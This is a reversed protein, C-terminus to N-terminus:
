IKDLTELYRKAIGDWSFNDIVFQRAKKGFERRFNEDAGLEKIKLVYAEANEPEVMFGNEGNKVSDKLGELDSSIVPLACSAAEIANIGFGEMSGPVKINPSVYIDATNFLVRLDKQPINPFLKIRSELDLEKIASVCKPYYNEDGATKDSVVGGAAALVYNEPLRSMVSRIFWEVGKHKVFRGVRLIVVKGALNTGMLKELESRPHPEFLEDPNLGNPIFACKEVPIGIKVAQSITENGVMILKDLQKLCPINIRRYIKGMLSPKNAFTIDLGHITSTFKIRPFIKKFFAGFPSLVGDGLIVADYRPLILAMKVFLYPLFFPLFKKGKINAIIKTKTIKSLAQAIGYNQNEIGGITPPWARSVFLIKLSQETPKM